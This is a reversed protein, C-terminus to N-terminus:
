PACGLLCRSAWLLGWHIVQPRGRPPGPAIPASGFASAAHVPTRSDLRMRILGASPLAPCTEAPEFVPTAQQFTTRPRPSGGSGQHVGPNGTTRPDPGLHGAALM